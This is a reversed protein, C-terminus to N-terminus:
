DEAAHAMADAESHFTAEKEASKVVSFGPAAEDTIECATVRYPSGACPKPCDFGVPFNVPTKERITLGALLGGTFHKTVLYLAPKKM